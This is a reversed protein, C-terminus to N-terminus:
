GLRAFVELENKPWPAPPTFLSDPKQTAKMDRNVPITNEIKWRSSSEKLSARFMDIAEPAKIGTVNGIRVILRAGPTCCPAVRKWVSALDRIYAKPNQHAIHANGKKIPRTPGGLFWNRLWQDTSYSDLGYYPPSTIIWDFSRKDGGM